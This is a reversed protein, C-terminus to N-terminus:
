WFTMTVDDATVQYGTKQFNSPMEGPNGHIYIDMSLDM